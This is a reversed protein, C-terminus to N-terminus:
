RTDGGVPSQKDDLSPFQVIVGVYGLYEIPVRLDQFRLVPQGLAGNVDDVDFVDVLEVEVGGEEGDLELGLVHHFLLFDTVTRHVRVVVERRTVGQVFDGPLEGAIILEDLFSPDTGKFTEFFIVLLFIDADLLEHQADVTMRGDLIDLAATVATSTADLHWDGPTLRCERTAGIIRIFSKLEFLAGSLVTAPDLFRGEEFLAPAIVTQLLLM